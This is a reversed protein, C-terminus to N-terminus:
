DSIDVAIKKLQKLVEKSYYGEEQLDTLFKQPVNYGDEDMFRRYLEDQSIKGKSEKLIKDLLKNIAQLNIRGWDGSYNEPYADTYEQISQYRRQGNKPATFRKELVLLRYLNPREWENLNKEISEATVKKNPVYWDQASFHRINIEKKFVLGHRAYIENVARRLLKPDGHEALAILEEQSILDESSHPLIESADLSLNVRLDGRGGNEEGSNESLEAWEEGEGEDEARFSYRVVGGESGASEEGPEDEGVKGIEIWGIDEEPDEEQLIDAEVWGEEEEGTETNTKEEKSEGEEKGDKKTEREEVANETKSAAEKENKKGPLSCATLLTILLTLLVLIMMKRKMRIEGKREAPDWIGRHASGFDRWFEM